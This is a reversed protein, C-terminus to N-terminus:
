RPKERRAREAALLIQVCEKVGEPTLPAMLGSDVGVASAFALCWDVDRKRNDNEHRDRENIYRCRWDVRLSDCDTGGYCVEPRTRAAPGVSLGIIPRDCNHCRDQGANTGM